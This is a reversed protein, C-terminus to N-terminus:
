RGVEETPLAAETLDAVMRTLGERPSCDPRWGVAEGVKTLDSVYHRQDANRWPGFAPPPVPRGLIEEMLMSFEAWVSINADPGGGVNFVTGPAVPRAILLDYLDLLDDIWLVDRVQLGDGFVTVPRGRTIQKVLWGVWGHDQSAWTDPGYVCSQRLVVGRVGYTSAYERVYLDATAKSCGYPTMPVVPQDEAFATRGELTWRTAKRRTPVAALDGYVKNSSAFLVMAEPAHHRVAELVNVTGAANIAFDAAPKSLSGTVATQGALHAIVEPRHARIVRGVLDANRIDGLEVSIGSAAALEDLRRRSGPRSLDDLILTAHGADAWRRALHSGIFGAGGTVVAQM